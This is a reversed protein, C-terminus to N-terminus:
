VLEANEILQISTRARREEVQMEVLALIDDSCLYKALQSVDRGSACFDAFADLAERRRNEPAFSNYRIKVGPVPKAKKIRIPLEQVAEM